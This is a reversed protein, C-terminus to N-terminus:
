NLLVSISGTMVQQEATFLGTRHENCGKVSSHSLPQMNSFIISSDIDIQMLEMVM